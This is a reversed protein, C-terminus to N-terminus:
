MFVGVNNRIKWVRVQYRRSRLRRHLEACLNQHVNQRHRCRWPWRRAHHLSKAGNVLAITEEYAQSIAVTLWM